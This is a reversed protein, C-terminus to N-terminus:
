TLPIDEPPQKHSTALQLTRLEDIGVSVPSPVAERHDRDKARDDGKGPSEEHRRPHLVPPRSLRKADEAHEHPQKTQERNRQPHKALPHANRGARLNLTLPLVGISTQPNIPSELAELRWMLVVDREVRHKGTATRAANHKGLAAVEAKSESYSIAATERAPITGHSAM